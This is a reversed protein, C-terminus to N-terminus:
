TQQPAGPFQEAMENSGPYVTHRELFDFLDVLTLSQERGLVLQSHRKWLEVLYGRKKYDLAVRLNTVPPFTLLSDKLCDIDAPQGLANHKHKLTLIM